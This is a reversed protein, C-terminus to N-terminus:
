PTAEMTTGALIGRFTQQPPSSLIPSIRAARRSIGLSVKQQLHLVPLRLWNTEVVLWQTVQVLHLLRGYVIQRMLQERLTRCWHLMTLLRVHLM